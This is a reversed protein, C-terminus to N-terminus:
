ADRKETAVTEREDVDEHVVATEKPLGREFEVVAEYGLDVMVATCAEDEDRAEEAAVVIELRDGDLTARKLTARACGSRGRICGTATVDAEGYEIEASEPESCEDTRAFSRDAIAPRTPADTGDGENGESDNGGGNGGEDGGNPSEGNALCGAFGASTAAVAANALLTRRKM